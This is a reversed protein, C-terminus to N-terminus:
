KVLRFFVLPYKFDKGSSAAVTGLILCITYFCMFPFALLLAVLGGLILGIGFTLVGFILYLVFTFVSIILWFLQFNLSENANRVVFPKNANRMKIIVPPLLAFLPLFFISGFISFVFSLIGILLPGLHCWMAAQSDDPSNFIM